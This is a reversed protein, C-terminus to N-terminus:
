SRTEDERAFFAAAKKLLDREMRLTRNEKRLRTLEAREENNLGPRKGLEVESRVIWQRLAELSVGLEKSLSTLSKGSERALRVAEPRFEPPVAPASQAHVGRERPGPTGTNLHGDFRTLSVTANQLEYDFSDFTVWTPSDTPDPPLALAGPAYVCLGLIM